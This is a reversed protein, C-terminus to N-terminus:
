RVTGAQYCVWLLVPISVITALDFTALGMAAAIITAAAAMVPVRCADLAANIRADKEAERQAQDARKQALANRQIKTNLQNLEAIENKM